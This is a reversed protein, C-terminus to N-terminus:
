KKSFHFKGIWGLIKIGAMITGKVTGSIKSQGIRSRYRVPVEIYKTKHYLSKLQMEITWGYTRDRMNFGKLTDWKIARFPGLDTYRSKYILRMLVCALWNGFIQPFTMSKSERLNKKRAGIVFDAVGMKIPNILQTMEGPYDSYDADLFVVVEPPNSELSQIGALCANGYGINKQQIVKANFKQAVESTQDTSNNDVVIIERVYNPIETLVKGISQAENHAPIIVSISIGM